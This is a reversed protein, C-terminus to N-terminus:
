RNPDPGLEPSFLPALNDPQHSVQGELQNQGL